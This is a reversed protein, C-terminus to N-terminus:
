RDMVEALWNAFRGPTMAGVRMGVRDLRGALGRDFDPTGADSLAALGLLTVGSEAMRKVSALLAREDAGEYFDSILALVTRGPNRVLTECYSVARGINTGGGLQVTMLLHVPDNVRDSLDVVGHDFVVIRATVGPLGALIGAMVASFIVSTAMSGSQDVCLIVDWPLLRKVRGNFYLRNVILRGREPDYNRLNDRITRKWDFNRAIKLYSRQFRNRRGGFATQVERRLRRAIEEVVASVIRLLQETVAANMKGKLMLLSELLRRNPAMRSLTEPDQLIEHMEFRDLADARITECVDDPFLKPLEKMWDLVAPLSDQSGAGRSASGLRLGRKEYARSYLFDLAAQMAADRGDLPREGMSRDSLRGLILRWRREITKM